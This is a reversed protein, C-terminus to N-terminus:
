PPRWPRPLLCQPAVCSTLRRWASPDPRRRRPPRAALLPRSSKTAAFNAGRRFTQASSHHDGELHRGHEALVFHIGPGQCRAHREALERPLPVIGLLTTERTRRSRRFPWSRPGHALAPGYGHHGTYAGSALLIAPSIGLGQADRTNTRSREPYPSPAQITRAHGDALLPSASDPAM